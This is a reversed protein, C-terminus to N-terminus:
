LFFTKIQKEQASSGGKKMDDNAEIIVNSCDSATDVSTVFM